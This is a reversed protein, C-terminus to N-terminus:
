FWPEVTVNPVHVGPPRTVIFRVAEAVDEPRLMLARVEPPPTVLAKDWVGTDTKGPSVSSVRVSSGRLEAALSETLARLGFKSAAYVGSGPKAIYAALSLVNVIVGAPAAMLLPLAARTVFFTGTLNTDIIERWTATDTEAVSVAARMSVGANNVLVDLRGFRRAVEAVAEGVAAEDAISGQCAVIRDSGHAARLPELRAAAAEGSRGLVVVRYGLEALMGAVALGIGQSGTVLAV